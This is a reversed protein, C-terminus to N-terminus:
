VTEQPSEDMTMTEGLITSNRGMGGGRFSPGRSSFLQYAEPSAPWYSCSSAVTELRQRKRQFEEQDENADGDVRVSTGFVTTSNVIAPRARTSPITLSNAARELVREKWAGNLPSPYLVQQLEQTLYYYHRHQFTVRFM